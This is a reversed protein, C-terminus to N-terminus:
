SFLIILQRTFMAASAFFLGWTFVIHFYKRNSNNKKAFIEFLHLKNATRVDDPTIASPLKGLSASAELLWASRVARRRYDYGWLTLMITYLEYQGYRFIYHNEAEVVSEPLLLLFWSCGVIGFMTSILRHLLQQQRVFIDALEPSLGLAANKM